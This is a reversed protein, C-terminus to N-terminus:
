KDKSESVISWSTNNDARVRIYRQDSESLSELILGNFDYTDGKKLNNLSDIVSEEVGFIGVDKINITTMLRGEKLKLTTM